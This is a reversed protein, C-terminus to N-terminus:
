AEYNKELLRRAEVAAEKTKFQGCSKSFFQVCWYAYTRGAIVRSRYYVGVVGSKNRTSIKSNYVNLSPTAIRLNHRQNDLPNRNKHDAWPKSKPLGLIWRHMLFTRFKKDGLALSYAAYGKKTRHWSLGKVLKLDSDDILAYAVVKKQRNKLPIKKM